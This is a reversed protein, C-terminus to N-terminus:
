SFSSTEKFLLTFAQLTALCLKCIKLFNQFLQLFHQKENGGERKKLLYPNRSTFFYKWAGSFMFTNAQTLTTLGQKIKLKM